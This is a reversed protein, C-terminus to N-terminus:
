NSFTLLETQEASYLIYFVSLFGFKFNLPTGKIADDLSGDAADDFADKKKM